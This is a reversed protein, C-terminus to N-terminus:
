CWRLYLAPRVPARYEVSPCSPVMGVHVSPMCHVHCPAEPIMHLFRRARHLESGPLLGAAVEPCVPRRLIGWVSSAPGRDTGEWGKRGSGGCEPLRSVGIVGEEVM